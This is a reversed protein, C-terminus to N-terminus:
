QICYYGTNCSHPYLSDWVALQAASKLSRVPFWRPICLNSSCLQLQFSAPKLVLLNKYRCLSNSGWKDVVPTHLRTNTPVWISCVYLCMRVTCVSVGPAFASLCLCGPGSALLMVSRPFTLQRDCSLSYLYASNMNIHLKAQTCWKRGGRGRWM